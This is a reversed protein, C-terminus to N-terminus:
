LIIVETGPSGSAKVNRTKTSLIGTQDGLCDGLFSSNDKNTRSTSSRLLENTWSVAVRKVENGCSGKLPIKQGIVHATVQKEQKTAPTNVKSDLGSSM